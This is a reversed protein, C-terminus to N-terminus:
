KKEAFHAKKRALDNELLVSDPMSIIDSLEFINSNIKYLHQYDEIFCNEKIHTLAKESWDNTEGDKILRLAFLAIEKSSKNNLLHNAVPKAQKISVAKLVEILTKVKTEDLKNKSELFELYDGSMDKNREEFSYKTENYFFIGFLKILQTIKICDSQVACHNKDRNIFCNEQNEILSKLSNEDLAWWNTTTTIENGIKGKYKDIDSLKQKYLNAFQETSIPFYNKGNNLSIKIEKNTFILDYYKKSREEYEYFDISNFIVDPDSPILRKKINIIESESEKLDGEHTENEFVSLNLDPYYYYSNSENVVTKPFMSSTLIRKIQEDNLDEINKYLKKFHDNLSGKGTIEDIYKYAAKKNESNKYISTVLYYDYTSKEYTDYKLSIKNVVNSLEMKLKAKFQM